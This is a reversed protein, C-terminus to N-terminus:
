KSQWPWRDNAVVMLRTLYLTGLLSIATGIGQVWAAWTENETSIMFPHHLIEPLLICAYGFSMTILARGAPHRFRNGYAVYSIMFLMWVVFAGITIVGLWTNSATM